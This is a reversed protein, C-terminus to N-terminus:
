RVVVKDKKAVVGEKAIIVEYSGAAISNNM